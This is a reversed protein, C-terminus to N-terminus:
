LARRRRLHSVVGLGIAGLLLAGPVPVIQIKAWTIDGQMGPACALPILPGQYTAWVSVMGDTSMGYMSWELMNNPLTTGTSLVTIPGMNFTGAGAWPGSANLTFVGDLYTTSWAWPAGAPVVSDLLAGSLSWDASNGSLENGVAGPGGGLFEEQWTGAAFAPTEWTGANPAASAAGTM